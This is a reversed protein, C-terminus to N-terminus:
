TKFKDYKKGMAEPLFVKVFTGKSNSRTSIVRAKQYLESLLSGYPYPLFLQYPEEQVSLFSDVRELLTKVGIGKLASVSITEADKPPAYNEKDNKNSVSVVPIEGLGLEGLVKEVVEKQKEYEPNSGDMVHLLLHSQRAEEFTSKFAEVLTHPLNRIFGVTDSLIVERGSPLKIRKTKPDLTAFLKDEALQDSKALMNFLTSKGANTYGVLTITPVPVAERKQRHVKRSVEVKELAKKLITIRERVRRRDVELQTEGPGRLGVGGGRQKSLHGWAGVLKPYLYEYQALEVQLKGEKSKAHLAFIDLILQTRDMVRLSLIKELNRNHAASLDTDFIVVDCGKEKAELAIMEAKGKGIFTAPNILKLDALTGAVETLGATRALEKLEAFSEEADWRKQRPLLFGVLFAKESRAM